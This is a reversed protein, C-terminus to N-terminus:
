SGSFFHCHTDMNFLSFQTIMLIVCILDACKFKQDKIHDRGKKLDRKSDDLVRSMQVSLSVFLVNVVFMM